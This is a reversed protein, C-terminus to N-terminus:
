LEYNFMEAYTKCYKKILDKAKPSLVISKYKHNHSEKNEYGLVFKYKDLNFKDLMRNYDENFNEFRIIFDYDKKDGIFEHLENIKWRERNNDILKQITNVSIMGSYGFWNLKSIFLNYPHRVVTFKRYKNFVKPYIISAVKYSVHKTNGSDYNHQLLYENKKNENWWPDEGTFAKEISTGGTKELHIFILKNKHDRM